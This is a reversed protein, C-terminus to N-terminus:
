RSMAIFCFCLTSWKFQRYETAVHKGSGLVLIYIQLCKHLVTSASINIALCLYCIIRRFSVNELDTRCHSLNELTSIM